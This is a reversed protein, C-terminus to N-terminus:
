KDGKGVGLSQDSIGGLVLDSHVRGVGDEIGLTKDSTTELIGLDLTVHLVEGELDDVLAGLREDLDLVLTLDLGEGRLLDRGHDQELHLLGSLGIQSGNHSIGDDGDRGVEVIGLTLGGLVSSRDRSHVNQTDNVLGSSGGNCVTKVFLSGSLYTDVRHRVM